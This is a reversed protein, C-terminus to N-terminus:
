SAIKKRFFHQLVLTNDLNIYYKSTIDDFDLKYINNIININRHSSFDALYIKHAIIEFKIGNSILRDAVLDTVTKSLSINVANLGIIEIGSNISLDKLESLTIEQDAEGHTMDGLILLNRQKDFEKIYYM